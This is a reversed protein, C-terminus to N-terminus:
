DQELEIDPIQIPAIERNEQVGGVGAKPGYRACLRTLQLFFPRM